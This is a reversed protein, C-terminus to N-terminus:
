RRRGGGGHSVGGSSTHSGGGGSGSDNKPIRRSTVQKRLFDDRSVRMLPSGGAVYANASVTDSGLPAKWNSIVFILLAATPVALVLWIPIWISNRGSVEQYIEQIFAKYAKYPSEEIYKYVKDLVHDIEGSGFQEIARGCTSIWSGQQGDMWNDLLLVGDGAAKDYGYHNEDYFDDSFDRMATEWRTGSKEVQENITVLVIDYQIETERGAILERLSAEEEPTLVQAYDYVREAPAEDNARPLITEKTRGLMVALFVVLVIGTLILWVRFYHIYRKIEEKRIDREM